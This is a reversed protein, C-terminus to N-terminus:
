STEHKSNEYFKPTSNEPSKLDIQNLYREPLNSSDGTALYHRIGDIEQQTHSRFAWGHVIRGRYKREDIEKKTM